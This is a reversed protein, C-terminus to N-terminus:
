HKPVSPDDSLQPVASGFMQDPFDSPDFQNTQQPNVRKAVPSETNGLGDLDRKFPLAQNTLQYNELHVSDANGSDRLPPYANYTHDELEPKPLDDEEPEDKAKSAIQVM